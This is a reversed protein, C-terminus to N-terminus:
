SVWRRRSNEHRTVPELHAPNVCVKNKCLHDLTMGDPIPGVLGEYVVRHVMPGAGKIHTQGYGRPNTYGQWEWCEDTFTVKFLVQAHAPAGRLYTLPAGAASLGTRARRKAYWERMYAAREARHEPGNVIRADPFNM